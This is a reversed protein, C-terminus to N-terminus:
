QLKQKMHLMVDNRIVAPKVRAFFIFDRVQARFSYKTVVFYIKDLDSRYKFAVKRM